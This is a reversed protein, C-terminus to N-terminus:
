AAKNNRRRAIAGMLGLGALLMAYTEPEPVPAALDYVYSVTAQKGAAIDGLKYALAITNDGDGINTGALLSYPNSDWDTVSAVGNSFSGVDSMTISLGHYTVATVSAKAGSGISNKTDYIETGSINEDPDFGAAYVVDTITATTNNKFTFDVHVSKEDQAFWVNQQLTLGFANGKSTAAFPYGLVGSADTTTMGFPNNGYSGGGAVDFSGNAGIGYFAWPDGPLIFDNGGFTLGTGATHNMLQGGNSIGVTVHDGTLVIDAAFATNFGVVALSAALLKLKM